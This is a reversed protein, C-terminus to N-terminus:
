KSLSHCISQRMRNIKGKVKKGIMTQTTSRSYNIGVEVGKKYVSWWASKRADEIKFHRMTIDGPSGAKTYDNLTNENTFFKYDRFLVKRAYLEVRQFTQEDFEEHSNVKQLTLAMTSRKETNVKRKWNELDKTMTRLEREKDRLKKRYIEVTKDFHDEWEEQLEEADLADENKGNPFPTPRNSTEVESDSSNSM